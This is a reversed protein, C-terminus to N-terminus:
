VPPSWAPIGAFEGRALGTVARKAVPLYGGDIVSPCASGHARVGAVPMRFRSPNETWSSQTINSM